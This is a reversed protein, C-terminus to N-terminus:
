KELRLDYADAPTNAIVEVEFPTSTNHNYRAPILSKPLGPSAKGPNDTPETANIVAKYEGPPAGPQYNTHLTYRGQKDILGTPVHGTAGTSHFSVTGTTLPQNDYIVQGSVPLLGSDAPGCGALTFTLVTILLLIPVSPRL